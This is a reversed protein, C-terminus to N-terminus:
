IATLCVVERPMPLKKVGVIILIIMPAIIARIKTMISPDIRLEALWFVMSRYM